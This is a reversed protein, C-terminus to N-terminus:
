SRDRIESVKKVEIGANKIIKATTGTSIIEVGFGSLKKAFETLNEKNSVSILARKIKILPM